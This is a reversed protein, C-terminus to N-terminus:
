QKIWIEDCCDEGGTPYSIFKCKERVKEYEFINNVIINLDDKCWMEDEFVSDKLQCISEQTALTYVMGSMPPITFGFTCLVGQLRSLIGKAGVSHGTIIIGVAKGLIEPNGELFTLWELFSQLPSGWSDWYTGSGFIYADAKTIKEFLNYDLRTTALNVITTNSSYKESRIINSIENLLIATNGFEGSISGNIILIEKKM